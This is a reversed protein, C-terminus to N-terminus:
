ENFSPAQILRREVVQQIVVDPKATEVLSADYENQWYFEAHQFHQALYPIMIVGFSDLFVIAKEIEGEECFTEFRDQFRIDIVRFEIRQGDEDVISRTPKRHSPQIDTETLRFKLGILRALDGGFNLAVEEHRDVGFLERDLNQFQSRLANMIEQYAITAGLSNWHTDTKHYVRVSSKANILAPRLDVFPFQPDIKSILESLDDLRSNPHRKEINAPMFESYITHKNPAITFVYVAGSDHAHNRRRHLESTWAAKEEASYPHLNRFYDLSRERNMFLWGDNGLIVENNPSTKLVTYKLAGHAVLLSDQLGSNFSCYLKLDGPLKALQKLSSPFSPLDAQHKSQRPAPDFDFFVDAFGAAVFALFLGVLLLESKRKQSFNM